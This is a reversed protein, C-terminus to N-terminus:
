QSEGLLEKLRKRTARFVELDVAPRGVITSNDPVNNMVLSGIGVFVNKGIRISNKITSHPAIFTNDGIETAGAVITMGTVICNRGIVVEHGINCNPGIKSGSGIVTPRLIGKQITTNSGIDVNDGIRLGSLHPVRELEGEDNVGYDLGEAGLVANARVIVNNGIQVNDYVTVNPHIDVGTGLTVNSAIHAFPSVSPTESVFFKQLIRAFDYKPTKSLIITSSTQIGALKAKLGLSCLLIGARSKRIAELDKDDNKLFCYALDHKGATHLYAPQGIERGPDGIIEGKIFAALEQANLTIM